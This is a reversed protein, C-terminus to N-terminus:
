SPTDRVFRSAYESASLFWVIVFSLVREFALATKKLAMMTIEITATPKAAAGAAAATL